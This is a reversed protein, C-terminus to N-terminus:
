KKTTEKALLLIENLDPMFSGQVLQVEGNKDYYYTLERLNNEYYSYFKTQEILVERSFKHDRLPVPIFKVGEPIGYFQGVKTMRVRLWYATMWESKRRLLDPNRMARHYKESNNIGLSIRLRHLATLHTGKKPSPKGKNARGIKAHIEPTHLARMRKRRAERDEPTINYHKGKNVPIGKKSERIKRKTEESHHKGYMPNNKGRRDYTIHIEGCKRCLLPGYNHGKAVMVECEIRAALTFAVPPLGESERHRVTPEGCVWQPM